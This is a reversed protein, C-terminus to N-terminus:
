QCAGAGKADRRWMLLADTIKELFTIIPLINSVQTLALIFKKARMCRKRVGNSPGGGFVLRSILIIERPPTEARRCKRDDKSYWRKPIQSKKHPKLFKSNKRWHRCMYYLQPRDKKDV